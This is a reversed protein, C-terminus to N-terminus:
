GFTFCYAEAGADEFEIEFRRGAIAGSQRILQYTRQADLKGRGDDTVDTGYAGDAPQGDLFVRFPISAGKAAPGMVLNVDRALFQFAIRAGPETSIAAHGAVTWTGSLAWSNLPLRPPAAYTQAQDFRALHDQAFGSSQRYGTYTEPSQLTRWDAAVELGEPEVMVLDQDVNAAGADLLLQQIVMETMAYEGEGFHHFRIQGEADAIYVAPWFHNDFARWVGYDSDIAIPYEVGFGRAEAVINEVTREFGFEPTHVGVITLGADRYKADWARVYPLTRIWNICTYTWFDVLVVRGRLGEPTLPEANLWGTAGDFSALRGEVPLGVADGALRHAISRLLSARSIPGSSTATGSEVNPTDTTDTM